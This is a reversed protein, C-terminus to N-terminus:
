ERRTWFTKYNQKKAYIKSYFIGDLFDLLILFPYFPVAM